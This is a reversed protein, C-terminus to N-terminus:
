RFNNDFRKFTYGIFPLSMEPSEEAQRGHQLAQAKLVTANDTQDIEDTPFYTTDINSTLRPEFPARIRRLSDFEVGRFFPHNKIEHAGGRGLRNETNCVMSRILNEAEVGLTIDDPFYLTQRWNVIKRYTDHSDEACFPPWGVLCEFMITGLSWWDCDFSYGHGTFIEPAIYDPTGVTSYAMLRRSRRWDNIQSRNSVTLNIQDIAVSNRDRPRNSRGQLLQQYYNNDHLRHFGTSLGFDTLKVHGGRDLLINDPKIDRHIFGLKHVAEIALVIEAIYFRTIDESFIEYKILMTMLDGGPLFEMLMYLFYADQFTTYLKVVWPSDSEALIDRESRVHALQDKKFMETKILSKMAYVKGDGKKQVLKVEGFAGKGIIKVTNYNEPKDKTRLFRLYQGEKRGATSWLQEKRAASQSPDQLKQELESQRQNRERARKVSDKFFDAALQSCKKQNSNANSGYRDPNREPAVQFEAMAPATQSPLPPANSYNAYGGPQSGATRPRQSPSPGRPAARAAGGLNQHSFQHALGTNPDNTGPTNSRAQYYGNQAHAYDNNVAQNPYGAPYAAGPPAFYGQPTCGAGYAQQQQQQQQQPHLGGQPQPQAQAQHANPPPFVPQPFTSPTTPYTRDNPPLRDNSGFNLHLRNGNPDM